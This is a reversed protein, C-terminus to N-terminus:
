TLSYTPLIRLVESLWHPRISSEVYDFTEDDDEYKQCGTEEWTINWMYHEHKVHKM